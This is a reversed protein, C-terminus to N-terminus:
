ESNQPTTSYCLVFNSEFDVDVLWSRLYTEAVVADSLELGFEFYDMLGIGFRRHRWIPLDKPVTSAAAAAVDDALAVDTVAVSAVALHALVFDAVGVGVGLHALVLDVVVVGLFLVSSSSYCDSMVLLCVFSGQANQFLPPPIPLSSLIIVQLTVRSFRSAEAM